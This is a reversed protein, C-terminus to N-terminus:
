STFLGDLYKYLPRSLTSGTETIYNKLADIPKDIKFTYSSSANNTNNIQTAKVVGKIFYDSYHLKAIQLNSCNSVTYINVINPDTNVPTNPYIVDDYKVLTPLLIDAGNVINGSVNIKREFCKMVRPKESYEENIKNPWASGTYEEKIRTHIHGLAYKSAKFKSLEIGDNMFPHGPIRIDTHAVLLDVQTDYFKTPLRTMLFKNFDIGDTTLHPLAIFKFNNQTDIISPKEIVMCKPKHKIFELANQEVNRYVKKDHNGTLFYTFKFKSQCLSVFKSVQDFVLGGNVPVEFLDGLQILESEPDINLKEFWELFKNGIILNWPNMCSFHLDGLVYLKSM